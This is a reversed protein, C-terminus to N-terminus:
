TATMTTFFMHHHISSTHSTSLFSKYFDYCSICIYIGSDDNDDDDDSGPTLIFDFIVLM